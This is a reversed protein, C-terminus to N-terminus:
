RVVVRLTCSCNPHLYSEAESISIEQGDLAQCDECPNDGTTQWIVNVIERNQEEVVKEIGHIIGLKFAKRFPETSILSLRYEYSDIAAIISTLLMVWNWNIGKNKKKDFIDSINDIKESFDEIFRNIDEKYEEKLFDVVKNNVMKKEELKYKMVKSSESQGSIYPDGILDINSNKNNILENRMALIAIAIDEKNKGILLHKATKDFGIEADKIIKEIKPKIGSFIKIYKEKRKKAMDEFIKPYVVSNFVYTEFNSEKEFRILDKKFFTEINTSM